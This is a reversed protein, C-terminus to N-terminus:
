CKMIIIYLKRQGAMEVDQFYYNEGCKKLIQLMHSINLDEFKVPLWCSVWVLESPKGRSDKNGSELLLYTRAAPDNQFHPKRVSLQKWHVPIWLRNQLAM